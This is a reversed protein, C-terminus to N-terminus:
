VETRYATPEGPHPDQQLLDPIVGADRWAPEDLIGDLRVTGTKRGAVVVPAPPATAPAAGSLAAPFALGLFLFTARRRSPPILENGGIRDLRRGRSGARKGRLWFSTARSGPPFAM